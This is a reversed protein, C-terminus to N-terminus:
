FDLFTKTPFQFIGETSRTIFRRHHFAVYESLERVSLLRKEM